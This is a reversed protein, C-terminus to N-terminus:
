GSPHFASMVVSASVHAPVKWAIPARKSRSHAGCMPISGANVIWSRSSEASRMFKTRWSSPRDFISFRNGAKTCSVVQGRCRDAPNPILPNSRLGAHRSEDDSQARQMWDKGRDATYAAAPGSTAPWHHDQVSVRCDRGPESPQLRFPAALGHTWAKRDNCFASRVTCLGPAYHPPM